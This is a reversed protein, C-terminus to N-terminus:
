TFGLVFQTISSNSFHLCRGPISGSFRRCTFYASLMNYYLNGQSFAGGNFPKYKPVAAAREFWLEQFPDKGIELNDYPSAWTSDVGASTALRVVLVPSVVGVHNKNEDVLGDASAAKEGV